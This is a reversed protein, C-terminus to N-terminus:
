PSVDAPLQVTFTTSPRAVFTPVSSWHFIRTKPCQPLSVRCRRMRASRRARSWPVQIGFYILLALGLGAAPGVKGWPGIGWGSFLTTCIATQMLCNTLPMRGAAGPPALRRAWEPRQFLRVIALVKLM